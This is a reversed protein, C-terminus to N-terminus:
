RVDGGAPAADHAPGRRAIGSEPHTDAQVRQLLSVGRQAILDRTTATAIVVANPFEANGYTHDMHYHSNVVYRVPADTLAEAAARLERAPAPTLFTDFVLTADGLHVIGANGWAGTGPVVIAAFIGDALQELRFNRSEAAGNATSM